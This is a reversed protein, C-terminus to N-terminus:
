GEKILRDIDDPYLSVFDEPTEEIDICELEGDYRDLNRWLFRSYSDTRDLREFIEEAQEKSDAEIVVDVYTSEVWRQAYKAM